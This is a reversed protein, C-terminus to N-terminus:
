DQFFYLSSLSCNFWGFWGSCDIPLFYFCHNFHKMTISDDRLTSAANSSGDVKLRRLDVVAMAHRVSGTMDDVRGHYDIRVRTALEVWM